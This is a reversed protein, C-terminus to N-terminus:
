LCGMNYLVFIALCHNQQAKEVFLSISSVKSILLTIKFSYSRQFFKWSPLSLHWSNKTLHPFWFWQWVTFFLLTWISTVVRAVALSLVNWLTRDQAVQFYVMQASKPLTKLPVCIPIFLGTETLCIPFHNWKQLILKEKGLKITTCLQNKLNKKEKCYQPKFRPGQVSWATFKVV